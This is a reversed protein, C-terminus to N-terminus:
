KANFNFTSPQLSEPKFLDFVLRDSGLSEFTDAFVRSALNNLRPMNGMLGHAIHMYNSYAPMSLREAIQRLNGVAPGKFTGFAGSIANAQGMNEPNRVANKAIQELVTVGALFNALDCGDEKKMREVFRAFSEILRADSEALPGSPDKLVEALLTISACLPHPLFRWLDAFPLARVHQLLSITARCAEVELEKRAENVLSMCRFLTLHLMLVELGGTAIGCGADPRLEAPMRDKWANLERRLELLENFDSRPNSLCSEAKSEIMLLEIRLIFLNINWTCDTAGPCEVDGPASKSPLGVKSWDKHLTSPLGLDTSTTKEMLHAVWFVRRRQEAEIPNVEDDPQELHLGLIHIMKMASHLLLVMTRNDTTGSLFMAMILIAQVSLVSPESILIDQYVSFANKFLGWSFDSVARFHSNVTKWQVAIAVVTNLCARWAPDDYKNDVLFNSHCMAVLSPGHFLPLTANFEELFVDVLLLVEAKPFMPIFLQGHCFADGSINRRRDKVKNETLSIVPVDQRATQISIRQHNDQNPVNATGTPSIDARNPAPKLLNPISRDTVDSGGAQDTPPPPPIKLSSELEKLRKELTQSRVSRPGPRNNDRPDRICELNREKCRSCPHKSDCRIKSM